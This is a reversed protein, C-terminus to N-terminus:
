DLAAYEEALRQCQAHAEQLFQRITAEPLNYYATGPRHFHTSRLSFEFSLIDKYASHRVLRLVYPWDVNGNDFCPPMHLDKVGDNDHLHIAAMRGAHREAIAYGQHPTHMHAHGSDFCYGLTATPYEALIRDLLEGNDGPLNELALVCGAAAFEPLLTDLSRRMADYRAETERRYAAAGDAALRREDLYAPHVVVAGSAGWAQHMRLADRVLDLAPLRLADDTSTWQYKGGASAHIDVVGLGEELLWLGIGALEADAHPKESAFEHGWHLHTFGAQAALHCWRRAEGGRDCFDSYIAFPLTGM